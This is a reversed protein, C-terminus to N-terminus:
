RKFRRIVALGACAIGMLTSTSGMDPVQTPVHASATQTVAILLTMLVAAGLVRKM